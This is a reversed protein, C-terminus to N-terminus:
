KENYVKLYSNVMRSVSFKSVIRNRIHNKNFSKKMKVLEYINNEIELLEENQIIYGKDAIISKSDGTNNALVPLDCAMAEGIVNPFGEGYKSFHLLIDAMNYMSNMDNIVGLKIINNPVNLKETGTGLMIFTIDRCKNALKIIQDHGKMPDLRAAYLAVIKNPSIGLKNRMKKKIVSNPKFHNTDIGNPIVISNSKKFKRSVHYEYGANSNYIVKKSFKSFFRNIIIQNGYRKLDMNSSRISHYLDINNMGITLLSSAINGGYMWGQVLNPNIKKIIKRLKYFKLPNIKNSSNEINVLNSSKFDGLINKQDHKKLPLIYSKLGRKNIERSLISLQKEAGGFGISPTIFLIKKM